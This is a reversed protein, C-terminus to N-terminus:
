RNRLSLTHLYLREFFGPRRLTARLGGEHPEVCVENNGKTGFTVREGMYEVVPATNIEDLPREEGLIREAEARAADIDM